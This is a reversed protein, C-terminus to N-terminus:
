LCAMLKNFNQILPRLIFDTVTFSVEVDSTIQSFRYQRDSSSTQSHFIFFFCKCHIISKLYSANYM